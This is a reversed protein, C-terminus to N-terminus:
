PMARIHKWSTNLQLNVKIVIPLLIRKEQLKNWERKIHHLRSPQPDMKMKDIKKGSSSLGHIGKNKDEKEVKNLQQHM